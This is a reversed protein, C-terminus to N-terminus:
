AARSRDKTHTRINQELQQGQPTLRWQNAAGRTQGRGTNHILGHSQLRALLRSVQGPDAIGAREAVQINSIGSQEAIAELVLVTRQTLRVSAIPPADRRGRESAHQGIPSGTSGRDTRWAGQTRSRSAGGERSDSSDDESRGLREASGEVRPAPRTRERAAVATGLYPLVILSMLEGLLGSLPEQQQRSKLRTNLISVIAGALGEATLSSCGGGRTSQQSGEAIAAVIRTLIEERYELMREDGRSSQVVCFRALEPERDLFGLITSLGMRVRERWPLSELDAAHLEATLQRDADKLVALLCEDRDAFLEYFTRRSIKARTAIHAVTVNGYGHEDVAAVAAWLLRARQAIATAKVGKVRTRPRAMFLVEEGKATLRWAKARGGVGQVGTDVVLGQERLRSLMLSAQGASSVRALRAVQANSPGELRAVAALVLYTRERVRFERGGVSGAPAKAPKGAVSAHSASGSSSASFSSSRTVPSVSLLSRGLIGEGEGGRKGEGSSDSPNEPAPRTLERASVAHGRYPLVITAMLENLLGTLPAPTPTPELLRAHILGFAAGVVAEATLAPLEVGPELGARGQDVAEELRHLVRTREALMRPGVGLAEVFLFRRLLPERDLSALLVTLASRVREVWEGEAEWVPAVVVALRDTVECFAALFCDERDAFLDYFTKSSMGALGAVRRVTMREYGQEAAIVIAADLLRTRQVQSLYVGGGRPGPAGSRSPRMKVRAGTPPPMPM